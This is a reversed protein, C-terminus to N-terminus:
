HRVESPMPDSGNPKSFHDVDEDVDSPQDAPTKPWFLAAIGALLIVLPLNRSLLRVLSLGTTPGGPMAFLAGLLAIPTQVVAQATADSVVGATDTKEAEQEAAEVEQEKVSVIAAAVLGLALLGGAMIWYAAISGFREVLMLTIAALGFGIAILFPVAVSARALYKAIVAGAATKVNNILGSFM